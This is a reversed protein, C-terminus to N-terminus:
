RRLIEMPLSLQRQLARGQFAPHPTLFQLKASGVATTTTMTKTAASKSPEARETSPAAQEHRREWISRATLKRKAPTEKARGCGGRVCKYTRCAKSTNLSLTWSPKTTGTSLTKKLSAFMSQQHIDQARDQNWTWTAHNRPLAQRALDFSLSSISSSVAAVQSPTNAQM